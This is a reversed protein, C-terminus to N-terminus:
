WALGCEFGDELAEAGVVLGASVTTSTSLAVFVV